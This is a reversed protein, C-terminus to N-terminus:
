MHIVNINGANYYKTAFRVNQWGQIILLLKCYIEWFNCRNVNLCYSEKIVNTKSSLLGKMHYHSFYCAHMFMYFLIEENDHIFSLTRHIGLCWFLLVIVVWMWMYKMALILMSLQWINILVVYNYGSLTNDLCIVWFAIGIAACMLPEKYCCIKSTKQCLTQQLKKSSSVAM